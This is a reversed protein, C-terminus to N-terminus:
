ILLNLLDPGRQLAEEYAGGHTHVLDGWESLSVVYVQDDDSWQIVITYRLATENM